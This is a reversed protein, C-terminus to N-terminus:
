QGDLIIFSTGKKQGHPQDISFVQGNGDFLEFTLSASPDKTLLIDQLIMYEGAGLSGQLPYEKNKYHLSCSALSLEFDNSNYLEIFQESSNEEYYSYIETIQLGACSPAPEPEPLIIADADIPPYHAEYSFQEVCDGVCRVATFNEEQKTAFKQATNECNIKGWCLEDVIDEGLLIKLRGATAALGSSGFNYLYRSPADAYQPSKSFGFVAMDAHMITSENFELEGALKDNSNYYQIKYPSLDIDDSVTKALEFFDYNQASADDKYGANIARFFLTPTAPTNADDEAFVPACFVGTVIAIGIITFFLIKKMSAM